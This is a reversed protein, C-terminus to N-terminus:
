QARVSHLSRTRQFIEVCFPPLVNGRLFAVSPSPEPVELQLAPKMPSWLVPPFHDFHFILSKSEFHILSPTCLLKPSRSILLLYNSRLDLSQYPSHGVVDANHSNWYESAEFCEGLSRNSRETRRPRGCVTHCVTSCCRLHM